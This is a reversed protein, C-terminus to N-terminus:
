TTIVKKGTLWVEQKARGRLTCSSLTQAKYCGTSIIAYVKNEPALSPRCLEGTDAKHESM